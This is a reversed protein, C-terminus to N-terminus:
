GWSQSEDSESLDLDSPPMEGVGLMASQDRVSAEPQYKMLVLPLRLLAAVRQSLGFKRQLSSPLEPESTQIFGFQTYFRALKDGLCELYLPQTAQQILHQVLFSGLGQNRWAAAVVISGLEQAELFNRLQGCAIVRGECEIVWFQRWRIQTPDLKAILVLKRIAWADGAQAPRIHCVSPLSSSVFNM